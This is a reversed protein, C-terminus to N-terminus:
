CRRLRFQSVYDGGRDSALLHFFSDIDPDDGCHVICDSGFRDSDFEEIPHDLSTRRRLWSRLTMFRLDRNLKTVLADLGPNGDHLLTVTKGPVIERARRLLHSAIDTQPTDRPRAEIWAGIMALAGAAMAPDRRNFAIHLRGDRSSIQPRSASACINLVCNEAERVRGSWPLSVVPTTKLRAAVAASRRCLPVCFAAPYRQLYRGIAGATAADDQPNDAIVVQRKLEFLPHPHLRTGGGPTDLVILTLNRCDAFEARALGAASDLRALHGPTAIACVARGDQPAVWLSEQVPHQVSPERVWIRGELAVGSGIWEIRVLQPLGSSYVPSFQLGAALGSSAFEGILQQDCWVRCQGPAPDPLRLQMLRREIDLTAIIHPSYTM